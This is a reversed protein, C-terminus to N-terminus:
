AKTGAVNRTEWARRPEFVNEQAWHTRKADEAAREAEVDAVEAACAAGADVDDGCAAASELAAHLRDDLTARKDRVVAMLNFKIESAAYKEIRAYIAARAVSLWTEAEPVVGLDVPGGKL